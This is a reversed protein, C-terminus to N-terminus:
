QNLQKFSCIFFHSRLPLHLQTFALSCTFRPILLGPLNIYFLQRACCVHVFRPSVPLDCSASRQRKRTYVLIRAMIIAVGTDPCVSVIQVDYDKLSKYRDRLGEHAQILENICQEVDLTLQHVALIQGNDLSEKLLQNSGQSPNNKNIKGIQKLTRGYSTKVTIPLSGDYMDFEDSLENYSEDTTEVFVKLVSSTLNNNSLLPANECGCSAYLTHAHLGKEPNESNCDCYNSTNNSNCDVDKFDSKSSDKSALSIHETNNCVMSSSSEAARDHNPSPLVGKETVHHSESTESYSESNCLSLDEIIKRFGDANVSKVSKQEENCEKTQNGLCSSQNEDRDSNPDQHNINVIEQSTSIHGYEEESVEHSDVQDGHIKNLQNVFGSVVKHRELHSSDVIVQKAPSVAFMAVGSGASSSSKRPDNEPQAFRCTQNEGFSARNAGVNENSCGCTGGRSCQCTISPRDSKNSSAESSLLGARPADTQSVQLYSGNVYETWQSSRSDFLSIRLAMLFDGTNFLIVDEMRLCISPNFIPFPPLLDYKFHVAFCHKLCKEDVRGFLTHQCDPCPRPSPVSCVTVYCQHSQDDIVSRRIHNYFLFNHLSRFLPLM